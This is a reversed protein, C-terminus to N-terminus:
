LQKQLAAQQQSLTTSVAPCGKGSGNLNQLSVLATNVRALQSQVSNDLPYSVKVSPNNVAQGALVDGVLHQNFVDQPPPCACPVKIPQGNAGNVAGDCDGTGTPNKGASFGLQPALATIQAPTPTGSAASPAPAAPAAPPPAPAPAPAPTSPPAPAPAPAAPPPPAGGSGIAADQAQFTTSAIPCGEGPGHLNQLTTAAANIRAHQSAESDDEPFSISVSPNNIIHGAAVNANLENVFDQRNPPCACPVKIPKGDSGKVAGDCDGTGTPNVGSQFGFQPILAENVDRRAIPISAVTAVLVALPVFGSCFKM